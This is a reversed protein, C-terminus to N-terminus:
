SSKECTQEEVKQRSRTGDNTLLARADVQPFARLQRHAGPSPHSFNGKKM